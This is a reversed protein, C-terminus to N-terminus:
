VNDWNVGRKILSINSQTTGFDSAIERQRVGQALLVRIKPIDSPSLKTNVRRQSNVQISVVEMHDPNACRRNRCLHDITMGDPIEGVYLQYSIRHFYRNKGEFWIIGYGNQGCHLNWNWCGTEPDITVMEKITKTRRKGAM